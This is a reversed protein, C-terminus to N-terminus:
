RVTMVFAVKTANLSGTVRWCGPRSFLIGTPQFGTPAYGSPVEATATGTGGDVRTASLRLRGEALRWWGIKFSHGQPRPDGPYAPDPLFAWLDKAGFWRDEGPRRRVQSPPDDERDSPRTVACETKSGPPATEPRVPPPTTSGTLATRPSAPAAAQSPTGASCGSVLGGCASLVVALCAAMRVGAHWPRRM